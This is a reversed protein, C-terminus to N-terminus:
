RGDTASDTMDEACIPLASRVLFCAIAAPQHTAVAVILQAPQMVATEVSKKNPSLTLTHNWASGDLARSRREM